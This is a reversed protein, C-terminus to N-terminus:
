PRAERVRAPTRLALVAAAGALALAGGSPMFRCTAAIAAALAGAPALRPATRLADLLLLAFFGPFIVDLGTAALASGGPVVLAGLATGLVWAPWQVLTAGFMLRRDFGGGPRQAAVWSGDVVAQGQLARRLPGGPLFRATAAAMPVFRLNMLAASALAPGIGGGVLAPGIGGGVLAPGIGGGGALATVLAFQASGSFVVASMAIALWAPWGHTVAFAGFGVALLFAGAALGVGVRIGNGM